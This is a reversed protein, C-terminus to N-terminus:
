SERVGSGQASRAGLRDAECAPRSGARDSAGGKRLTGATCGIEAAISGMPTWQSRYEARHEFVMRVARERVEPSYRTTKNMVGDEWSISDGSFGSRNLSDFGSDKSNIRSVVARKSSPVESKNAIEQGEQIATSTPHATRVM